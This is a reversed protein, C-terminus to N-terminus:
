FRHVIGAHYRTIDTAKAFDVRVVDTYLYTRKSLAYQAFLELATTDSATNRAYQAGLRTAGFPAAIGAYYGQGGGDGSPNAASAGAFTAAVGSAPPTYKPQAKEAVAYGGTVKFHGGDYSAGVAYATRNEDTKATEAVAGAAWPGQAYNVRVSTRAKDRPSNTGAPIWSVGANLGNVTPSLYQIQADRRSSGYWTVPSIAVVYPASTVPVVNIDFPVQSQTASSANRGLKVEGFGGSLGVWSFRTFNLGSAAGNSADFNNTQLDFHARLGGGLDETGRFGFHSGGHAASYQQFTSGTTKGYSLDVVGYLTVSSQAFASVQFFAALVAFKTKM